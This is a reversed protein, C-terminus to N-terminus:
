GPTATRVTGSWRWGTPCPGPRGRVQGQGRGRRRRRGQAPGPLRGAPGQRVPGPGQRPHLDVGASGARRRVPRSGGVGARRRGGTGDHALGPAGDGGPGGRLPPVPEASGGARRGLEQLDPWADNRWSEIVHDTAVAMHTVGDELMGLLSGLVARAAGVQEGAATRHPPAGFYHRFLEYTGDVLYAKM